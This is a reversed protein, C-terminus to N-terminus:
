TPRSSGNAARRRIEFDQTVGRPGWVPPAAAPREPALWAELHLARLARSRPHM